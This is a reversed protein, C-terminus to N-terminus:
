GTASVPIFDRSIASSKSLGLGDLETLLSDKPASGYNNVQINVSANQLASRGDLTSAKDVMVSLAFPIEGPKLENMRAQLQDLLGAATSRLQASFEQRFLDVDMKLARGLLDKQDDSLPKSAQAFTRAGLAASVCAPILESPEATKLPKPPPSGYGVKRPLGKPPSKAANPASQPSPQPEPSTPHAQVNEM